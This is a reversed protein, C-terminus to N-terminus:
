RNIAAPDAAARPPPSGPPLLNLAACARYTNSRRLMTDLTKAQDHAGLKGIKFMLQRAMLAMLRNRRREQEIQGALRLRDSQPLDTASNLVNLAGVEIYEANNYAQVQAAQAYTFGYDQERDAPLHTATGDATVATWVQDTWQRSPVFYTTPGLIPNMMPPLPTWRGVGGLLQTELDTLRRDLCNDVMDRELASWDIVTLEVNLRRKADDVKHSWHIAEVMQEAGLATLVGVVIIVYEKLFERVGHWTKPKHIDM